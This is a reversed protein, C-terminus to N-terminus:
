IKGAFIDTLLVVASSHSRNVDNHTFVLRTRTGAPGGYKECLFERYREVTKRFMAWETGCVLGRDRWNNGRSEETTQTSLIERDLVTCVQECRQVWKNWICWIFPGADLEKQLLPYGNHLERLKETIQVSSESQCMEAITLPRARFYEEFRGNTFTGLVRPGLKRQALRGLVRLEAVRDILYASQAGYIRL